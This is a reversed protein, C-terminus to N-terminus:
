EPLTVTACGWKLLSKAPCAGHEATLNRGPSVPCGTGGVTTGPCCWSPRQSSPAPSPDRPPSPTLPHDWPPEGTSAPAKSSKPQFFCGPDRVDALSFTVQAMPRTCACGGSCLWDERQQLHIKVQQSNSEAKSTKLQAKLLLLPFWGLAPEPRTGGARPPKPMHLFSIFAGSGPSAALGSRILVGM